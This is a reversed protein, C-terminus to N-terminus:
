EKPMQDEINTMEKLIDLHGRANGLIEEALSHLAAAGELQAACREIATIDRQQQRIVEQRLFELALDNKTTFEGPFRGPDPRGGLETIAQAVRLAYRQQDAALRDLALRLERGNPQTWPKAQALYAPLSRCLLRLLENLLRITPLSKMAHRGETFVVALAM